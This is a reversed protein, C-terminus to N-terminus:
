QPRTTSATALSVFRRATRIRPAFSARGQKPDRDTRSNRSHRRTDQALYRAETERDGSVLLVRGFISRHARPPKIFPCARGPRPADRFSTPRPPSPRRNGVVCELGAIRGKFPAAIGGGQQQRLREGSTVDVERGASLSEACVGERGSASKAVSGAQAANQERAAPSVRDRAGASSVDSCLRDSPAGAM